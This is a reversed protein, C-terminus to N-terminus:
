EWRRLLHLRHSTHPRISASASTHQRISVYASTHQRISVYASTHQRISVYASAAVRESGEGSCTSDTSPTSLGATRSCMFARQLAECTHQRMSACASTNQLISASASAHPRISVSCRRECSRATAAAHAESAADPTVLVLLEVLNRRAKVSSWPGGPVPLLATMMSMRLKRCRM